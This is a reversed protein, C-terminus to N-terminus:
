AAKPFPEVLTGQFVIRAEGRLRVNSFADGARDFSITLTTGGRTLLAVPPRAKGRLAALAATAVCGTGCALTEAEVGREYTRIRITHEDLVQAFNANAGAPAFAKHRRVARGLREANVTDVDDVWAVAHPVGTNLYDVTMRPFKGFELLVDRRLDVPATLGIEVEGNDFVEASYPGAQTEFTMRAPAAGLHRALRAICRAGNGCSEAEGGDANYYRMRFHGNDRPPEILLVGDAGVSLARRCLGEIWQRRGEEPISLGRNDFVVFDNGAGSMKYFTLNM